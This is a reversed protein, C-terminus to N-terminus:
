PQDRGSASLSYLLLVSLDHFTEVPHDAPSVRAIPPGSQRTVSMLPAPMSIRSRALRYVGRRLTITSAMRCRSRLIAGAFEDGDDTGGTAALTRKEMQNCAEFQWGATAYADTVGHGFFNDFMMTEPNSELVRGQQRPKGHLAIKLRQGEFQRVLRPDSAFISARISNTPRCPNSRVRGLWSEPPIRCRAAIARESQRSGSTRRSSSGNPASSATVRRLSLISNSSMQRSRAIVVM